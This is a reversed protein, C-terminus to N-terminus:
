KAVDHYKNVFKEKTAAETKIDKNITDVKARTERNQRELGQADSTLQSKMGEKEAERDSNILNKLNTNEKKSSQLEGQM